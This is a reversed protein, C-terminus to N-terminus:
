GSITTLVDLLLRVMDLDACRRSHSGSRREGMSVIKGFSHRDHNLSDMRTQKQSTNSSENNSTPPTLTSFVLGFHCVTTNRRTYVHPSVCIAIRWPPSSTSKQLLEQDFHSLYCAILSRTPHVRHFEVGGRASRANESSLWGGIPASQLSEIVTPFMAIIQVSSFVV